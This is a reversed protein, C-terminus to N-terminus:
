IILLASFYVTCNNTAGRTIEFTFIFSGCVTLKQPVAWHTKWQWELRPLDVYGLICPVCLVQVAEKRYLLLFGEIRGDVCESNSNCLFGAFYSVYLCKRNVFGSVSM